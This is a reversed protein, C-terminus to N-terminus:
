GYWCTWAGEGARGEPNAVAAENWVESAPGDEGSEGRLGGGTTDTDPATLEVVEPM